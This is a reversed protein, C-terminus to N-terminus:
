AAETATARAVPTFLNCHPCKYGAHKTDPGLMSPRFTKRCHPCKVADPPEAMCRVYCRPEAWVANM